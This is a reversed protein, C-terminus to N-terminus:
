EALEGLMVADSQDIVYMRFSDDRKLQKKYIGRAQGSSSVTRNKIGFIQKSSATEQALEVHAKSQLLESRFLFVAVTIMSLITLIVLPLVIAAELFEEGRKNIGPM